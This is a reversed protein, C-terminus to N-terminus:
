DPTYVAQLSVTQHHHRIATPSVSCASNWGRGFSCQCSQCDALVIAGIVLNHTSKTWKYRQQLTSLYERHWRQWFHQTYRQLREWRDLRNEPVSEYEPEPLAELPRGILFHGPTLVQLDNPDNSLPSIPRSNLCGEIQTLVTCFAEQTLFANGIIRRLHHKMSKVCAEWLGGFNPSRAPIFHFQIFQNSAEATVAHRHQESIFQKCLERLERDAGVFNTANDCYINKPRGRKAIFRRLSAIFAATTLESVLELHAAKTAMCVYVAVYSKITASRPGARRLHFPGAFDIGVNEFAYSKTVRVSPLSGMLQCIISPRAKVCTVCSQVVARVLNRGKLPWFRQRLTALLLHPGCHLQQRHM